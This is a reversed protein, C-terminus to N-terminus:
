REDTAPLEALVPKLTEILEDLHREYNRWLYVSSCLDAAQSARFKCNQRYQNAPTTFLM